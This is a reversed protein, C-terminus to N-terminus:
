SLLFTKPPWLFRRCLYCEAPDFVSRCLEWDFFDLKMAATLMQLKAYHERAAKSNRLIERFREVGAEDLTESEWDFLLSELEEFQNESM